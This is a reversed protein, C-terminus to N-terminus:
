QHIQHPRTAAQIERVYGIKAHGSTKTGAAAPRPLEVWVSGPKRLAPTPVNLAKALSPVLRYWATHYQVAVPGDPVNSRKNATALQLDPIYPWGGNPHARHIRGSGSSWRHSVFGDVTM